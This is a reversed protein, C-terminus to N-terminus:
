GKKSLEKRLVYVNVSALVTFLALAYICRATSDFVQYYSQTFCSPDTNHLGLADLMGEKIMMPDMAYLTKGITSFEFPEDSSHDFSTTGDSWAVSSVAFTIFILALTIILATYRKKVVSAMLLGIMGVLFLGVMPYLTAAALIITNVMGGGVALFLLQFILIFALYTLTTLMLLSLLKSLYVSVPRARHAFIYKVLGDEKEQSILLTGLIGFVIPWIIILTGTWFTLISENQMEELEDNTLPGNHNDITKHQDLALSYTFISSFVLVAAILMLVGPSSRVVKLDKWLHSGTERLLTPRSGTRRGEPM